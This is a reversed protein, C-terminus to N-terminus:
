FNENQAPRYSKKSRRKWQVGNRRACNLHRLLPLASSGLSNASDQKAQHWAFVSYLEAELVVTSTDLVRERHSKLAAKVDAVLRMASLSRTQRATSNPGLFYVVHNHHPIKGTDLNVKSITFPLNRCTTLSVGM